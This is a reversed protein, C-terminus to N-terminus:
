WEFSTLAYVKVIGACTVISGEICVYQRSKHPEKAILNLPNTKETEELIHTIDPYFFYNPLTTDEIYNVGPLTICVTHMPWLKHQQENMHRTGMGKDNHM